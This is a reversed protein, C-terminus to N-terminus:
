IWLKMLYRYIGLIFLNINKPPSFIYSFFLCWVVETYSIQEFFDIHPLNTVYSEQKRLEDSNTEM